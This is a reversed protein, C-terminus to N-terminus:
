NESLPLEAPRGESKSVWHDYKANIVWRQNSVFPPHCTTITLYRETPIQEPQRPVPGIVDVDDPSVIYSDSVKYVYYADPTEVILPDGIQLDAVKKMPAGFTQRHAATAFNGVEGLRQTDLYHGFSGKDLVEELDTGEQVLYHWDAGFRPIYMVGITTGQQGDTTVIPPDGASATVPETPKAWGLNSIQEEQARNAGIDTWWVQWVIFLLLFLGTTIMLEGIVGIIAYFLSRKKKPKKATPTSASYANQHPPQGQNQAAVSAAIAQGQETSALTEWMDELSANGRENKVSPEKPNEQPNAQQDFNTEEPVSASIDTGSLTTNLPHPQSKGINAERARTAAALEDALSGRASSSIVNELSAPTHAIQAPPVEAVQAAEGAHAIEEAQAAEEAQTAAREALRAARRRGLGQVTSFRVALENAEEESGHTHRGSM